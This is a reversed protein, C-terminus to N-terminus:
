EIMIRLKKKARIARAVMELFQAASETDELDVEIAGGLPYPMPRTATRPGLPHDLLAESM